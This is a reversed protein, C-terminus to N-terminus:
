IINYGIVSKLFDINGLFNIHAYGAVTNKKLM